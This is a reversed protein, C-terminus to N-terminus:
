SMCMHVTKILVCVKRAVYLTAPWRKEQKRLRGLFIVQKVIISLKSAPFSLTTETNKSLEDLSEIKCGNWSFFPWAKWYRWKWRWMIYIIGSNKHLKGKNWWQKSQLPAPCCFCLTWARCFWRSHLPSSKFYGHTFSYLLVSWKENRKQKRHAVNNNMNQQTITRCLPGVFGKISSSCLSLALNVWVPFSNSSPFTITRILKRTTPQLSSM